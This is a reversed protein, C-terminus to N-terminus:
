RVAPLALLRECNEMLFSKLKLPHINLRKIVEPKLRVVETDLVPKGSESTQVMFKGDTLYCLFFWQQVVVDEELIHEITLVPKIINITSPSIRQLERALTIDIRGDKEQMTGGPATWYPASANVHHKVLVLENAATILIACVRQSIQM